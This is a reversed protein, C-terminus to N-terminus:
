QGLLDTDLVWTERPVPVGAPVNHNPDFVALRAKVQEIIHKEGRRQFATDHTDSYDELLESTLHLEIPRSHKHPRERTPLPWDVVFRLEDSDSPVAKLNAGEPFVPALLDRFYQQLPHSKM